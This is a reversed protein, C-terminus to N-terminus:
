TTSVMICSAIYSRVAKRVRNLWIHCCPCTCTRGNIEDFHNQQPLRLLVDPRTTTMAHGMGVFSSRSEDDCHADLFPLQSLHKLTAIEPFNAGVQFCGGIDLHQLAHLEKWDLNFVVGATGYGQSEDKVSICLKSLKSLLEFARSIRISGPAVLDLCELAPLACIGALEMPQGVGPLHLKLNRLRVLQSFKRPMHTHFGLSTFGNHEFLDRKDAALIACKYEDHTIDLNLLHTCACLGNQHLGIETDTLQLSLLTNCCSCDDGAPIIASKCQLHTLYSAASLHTFKGELSLSTLKPLNSLPTLDLVPHEQDATTSLTCATLSTSYALATLAKTLHGTQSFAEFSQLVAEHAQLWALFGSKTALVEDMLVYHSLGPCQKLVNQFTKCVAPLRWLVAQAEIATPLRSTTGPLDDHEQEDSVAQPLPFKQSFAFVKAWLDLPVQEVM